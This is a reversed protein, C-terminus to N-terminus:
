RIQPAVLGLDIAKLTAEARSSIQLKQYISKLYGAATHQSIGLMESASRVSFGRAILTLVQEERPALRVTEEVAPRFVSLVKRAIAASLPPRGALIGRLHHVFEVEPEDKLLYGDAGAHLASFLHDSDDFITTVVCVSDPSVRKIARIIDVGPGDPLGLDILALRPVREAVVQLAQECRSAQRVVSGPFHIDVLKRLWVMVDPVDEVLLIDSFDM